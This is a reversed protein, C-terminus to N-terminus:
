KKKRVILVRARPSDFNQAAIGSGKALFRLKTVAALRAQVHRSTGPRSQVHSYRAPSRGSASALTARLSGLAVIFLEGSRERSSLALAYRGFLLSSLCHRAVVFHSGM